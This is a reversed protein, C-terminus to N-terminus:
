ISNPAIKKNKRTEKQAERAEGYVALDFMETYGCLACTVLLFRGGLKPIIISTFAPAPLVVERLCCTTHNCKTCHFSGKIKEALNM